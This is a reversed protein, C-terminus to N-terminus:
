DRYPFLFKLDFVLLQDLGNNTKDDLLPNTLGNNTSVLLSDFGNNPFGIKYSCPHVINM